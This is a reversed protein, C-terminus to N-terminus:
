TEHSFLYYLMHPLSTNALPHALTFYLVPSLLFPFLSSILLLRISLVNERHTRTNQSHTQKYGLKIQAIGHSEITLPPDELSTNGVRGKVSSSYICSDPDAACRGSICALLKSNHLSERYTGAPSQRSCQTPSCHPHPMSVRLVM